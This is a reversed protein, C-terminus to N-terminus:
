ELQEIRQRFKKLEDWLETPLDNLFEDEYYKQLDNLQAIWYAKPTSMLEKMNIDGLGSIDISGEKPILGVPSEVAVDKNNVRDFVWELM